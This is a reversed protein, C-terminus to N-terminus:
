VSSAIAGKQYWVNARTTRLTSPIMPTRRFPNTIPHKANQGITLVGIKTEACLYKNIIYGLYICKINVEEISSISVFGM